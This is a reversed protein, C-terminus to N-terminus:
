VSRFVACLFVIEVGDIITRMQSDCPINTFSFVTYLNEDTSAFVHFIFNTM